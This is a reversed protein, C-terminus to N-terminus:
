DGAWCGLILDAVTVAVDGRPTPPKGFQAPLGTIDVLLVKWDKRVVVDGDRAQFAGQGLNSLPLAVGLRNGLGHFYAVTQSWSSLEKVSLRLAGGTYLFKCSYLDRVWSPTTIALAKEGLVQAVDSEAKHACVMKSIESPNKGPPLPVTSTVARATSATSPPNSATAGGCASTAIAVALLGAWRTRSRSM